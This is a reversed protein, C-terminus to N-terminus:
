SNAYLHLREALNIKFRQSAEIYDKGTGSVDFKGDKYSIMTSDEDTFIKVKMPISMHVMTEFGEM